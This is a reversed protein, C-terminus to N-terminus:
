VLEKLPLTAILYGAPITGLPALSRGEIKPNLNSDQYCPTLPSRGENRLDKKQTTHRDNGHYRVQKNPSAPHELSGPSYDLHTYAPGSM